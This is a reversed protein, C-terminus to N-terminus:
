KKEYEKHTGVSIPIINNGEILFEMIIRYTMNISVSHYESLSGHLKHLRLSPHFPNSKLLSLTKSYTAAISRHSKLFKMEKNKYDESLILNYTADNM